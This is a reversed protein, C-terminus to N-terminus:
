PKGKLEKEYAALDAPTDLDRPSGAVEIEDILEPHAALFRRAGEDPEAVDAAQLWLEPAMVIPHVRRGGIRGVAIRGPTWAEIVARVATEGIGPLDVLHVVIADADSAVAVGLVLSSRMGSDADHNIVSIADTATHDDRMVAYVSACGGDALARVARDILRQGDLILGAKPTGMRTGSGAALVVGAIM